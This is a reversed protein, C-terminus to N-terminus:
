KNGRRIYVRIEGAGDMGETKKLAGLMGTVGGAVFGAVFDKMPLETGGIYVRAARKSRERERAIESALRGIEDGGYRNAGDGPRHRDYVAFIGPADPPDEDPRAVWIKPLALDKGGELIVVDASPFFKGAAEYPDPPKGNEFASEMRFGDGGWLLAAAGMAAVSGSDTDAGSLASEQTHKIYGSSIGRAALERIIERCLTTKGSDKWGSVAIIKM